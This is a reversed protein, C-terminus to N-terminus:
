VGTPHRRSLHSILSVIFMVLFIFFLVKAIGAAAFSVVGFGLVGAIVAILLFLMTYYLM